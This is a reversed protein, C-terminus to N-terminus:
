GCKEFTLEFSLCVALSSEGSSSSIIRFCMKSWLPSLASDLAMVFSASCCCTADLFDLGRLTADASFILYADELLFFFALSFSDTSTVSCVDLFLEGNLVTTLSSSEVGFVRSM